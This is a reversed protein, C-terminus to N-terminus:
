LRADAQMVRDRVMAANDANVYELIMPIGETHQHYLKVFREWQIDGDGVIRGRADNVKRDKGHFYAIHKGLYFFMDEESSNAILNAPDLLVKLHNSGVQHLLDAMRKASPVIDLVCPELAITVKHKEAKETLIKITEVFSTFASEYTDLQIGRKGPLFGCETSVYAVDYAAAMEMHREFYALNQELEQANTEMLNTFVGIATVDIGAGRYIDIIDGVRESTLHSLDSRGNYVWFNSDTQSFCLETSTFHNKAMFAAAEKNSMEPFSRTVVGINM